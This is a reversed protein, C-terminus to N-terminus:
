KDLLMMCVEEIYNITDENTVKNGIADTVHFVAYVICLMHTLM